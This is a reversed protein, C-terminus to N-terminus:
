FASFKLYFTINVRKSIPLLYLFLCGDPRHVLPDNWKRSQYLGPKQIWGLVEDFCKGSPHAVFFSNSVSNAALLVLPRPDLCAIEAMGIVLPALVVVAGINSIFLSFSTALLTIAIELVLGSQGEILLMMNEALFYAAGSKQMAVGLPILGALLFVV